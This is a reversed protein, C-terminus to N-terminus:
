LWVRAPLSFGRPWRRGYRNSYPGPTLNLSEYIECSRWTLLTKLILSRIRISPVACTNLRNLIEFRAPGAPRGDVGKLPVSAVIAEADSPPAGAPNLSPVSPPNNVVAPSRTSPPTFRAEPNPLKDATRGDIGVPVPRGRANWNPM